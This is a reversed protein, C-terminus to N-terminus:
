GAVQIKDRLQNRQEQLCYSIISDKDKPSIYDFQFSVQYSNRRLRKSRIVHGICNLPPQNELLNILLSIKHNTKPEEPFIALVGSGSM